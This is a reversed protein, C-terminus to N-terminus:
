GLQPASTARMLDDVSPSPAWRVVIIALVTFMIIVLLTVVAATSFKQKRLQADSSSGVWECGKEKDCGHKNYDYSRCIDSTPADPMFSPPKSYKEEYTICNHKVKNGTKNDGDQSSRVYRSSLASHPVRPGFANDGQDGIPSAADWDCGYEGCTNSAQISNCFSVTNPSGQRPSCRSLTRVDSANEPQPSTIDPATTFAHSMLRHASVHPPAEQRRMSRQRTVHDEQGTVYVPPASAWVEEITDADNFAM